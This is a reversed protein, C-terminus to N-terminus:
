HSLPPGRADFLASWRPVVGHLVAVPLVAAAPLAQLVLPASACGPESLIDYLRCDSSGADHAFLDALWAHATTRAHAHAVGSAHVHVPGREVGAAHRSRHLWGLTQALILAALVVMTISRAHALPRSLLPTM